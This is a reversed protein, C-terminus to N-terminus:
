MLLETSRLAPLVTKNGVLMPTEDMIERELEDSDYEDEEILDDEKEEKVPTEDKKKTTNKLPPEPTQCIALTKKADLQSKSYSQIGDKSLIHSLHMELFSRKPLINKILIEGVSKMYISFSDARPALVNFKNIDKVKKTKSKPANPDAPASFGEKIRIPYGVGCAFVKTLCSGDELM